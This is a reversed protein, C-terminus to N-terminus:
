LRTERYALLAEALAFDVADDIDVSREKAMVYGVTDPRLFSDAGHLAEIAAAYVAGNLAYAAPLDQRRRAEPRSLFPSLRGERALQFLWWPPKDVPSVSVCVGAGRRRRERVCGDIDECTRLPSTPQLLVLETEDRSAWAGLAHRVVAMAPTEDDALDRPRLGPVEAGAARAAEAIAADDTSVIVRSVEESQLAAEITWDILPRGGLPRINKGPLGKSGGRAPILGLVSM